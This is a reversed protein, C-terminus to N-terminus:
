LIAIFNGGTMLLVVLIVSTFLAVCTATQLLSRRLGTLVISDSSRRLHMNWGRWAVARPADQRNICYCLLAERTLPPFACSYPRM